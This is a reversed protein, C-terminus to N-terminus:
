TKYIAFTANLCFNFYQNLGSIWILFHFEIEYIPQCKNCYVIKSNTNVTVPIMKHPLTTKKYKKKYLLRTLILKSNVVPFDRKDFDKFYM